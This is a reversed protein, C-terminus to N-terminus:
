KKSRPQSKKAAPKETEQEPEVVKYVIDIEKLRSLSSEKIEEKAEEIEEASGTLTITKTKFDSKVDLGGIWTLNAVLTEFRARNMVVLNPYEDNDFDEIFEELTDPLEITVVPSGKMEIRVGDSDVEISEAPAGSVKSFKEALACSNASEIEGRIGEAELLAAIKNAKLKRLTDVSEFVKCAVAAASVSKKAMKNEFSILEFYHIRLSSCRRKPSLLLRGSKRIVADMYQAYLALIAKDIADASIM